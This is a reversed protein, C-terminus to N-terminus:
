AIYIVSQTDCDMPMPGPQGFGLKILLNNLWVMECTMYAMAKYEPEASSRSM